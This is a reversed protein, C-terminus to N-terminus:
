PEIRLVVDTIFDPVQLTLDGASISEESLVDGTSPDIWTATGDFNISVSIVAGSTPSQHDEFNHLYASFMAPSSLGYARIPANAVGVTVIIADPDFTSAFDQIVRAYTREEPGIYINAAGEERLDKAFSSNWFILAVENFFATWTRIRLRVASREDWNVGANGQEGFIIPKPPQARNQNGRGGHAARTIEDVLALDSEFESESAYWHPSVIDIVALDPREWSTSIPRAYPDIARLHETVIRYWGDGANRRPQNENMLEWFDVHAGYRNVVYEVARKVAEMAEVNDPENLAPPRFGFMDFYIRFGHRRATQILQDTWQSQQALYINGDPSIREHISYACNGDSYRFLNFGGSGYLAFYTEADTFSGPLHVGVPRLEGDVGFDDLPTGNENIDLLCENLGIPYYPAGNEFIWRMPNNPNQMVRGPADSQTVEFQGSATQMQMGDDLIASWTWGGIEDPSFRAKWTDAAYYFGGIEISEGNPSTFVLGLGVDGWVNAYDGSSWAFTIEYVDYAPIADPAAFELTNQAHTPLSLVALLVLATLTILSLPKTIKRFTL